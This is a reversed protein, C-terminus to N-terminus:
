SGSGSTSTYTVIFTPLTNTQDTLSDTVTLSCHGASPSVTTTATFPTENSTNSGVSLTAFSTCGSTGSLGLQKNYPSNSFGLEGYKVSGSYGVGSGSDTSFLDVGPTTGGNYQSLSNGADSTIANLLPTFTASGATGLNAGSSSLSIANEALGGYNLTVTDTDATVDVCSSTCGSGTHTGSLHTGNTTEIDPDTIRVSNAYSGTITEGSHDAVTITLNQTQGSTNAHWATPVGSISVTYPIGQLTVSANNDQSPVPTMSTTGTDLQNGTGNGSDFTTITYADLQGPPSAPGSIVCPSSPMCTSGSVNATVSLPSVNPASGDVSTLTITISQTASSVYFPKRAARRSSSKAPVVITFKASVLNSPPTQTPQPVPVPGGSTGASGGGGCATLSAALAASLTTRFITQM